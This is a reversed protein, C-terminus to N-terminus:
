TSATTRRRPRERPVRAWLTQSFSADQRQNSNVRLRVTVTGPPARIKRPYGTRIRLLTPDSASPEGAHQAQRRKKYKRAMDLQDRARRLPSFCRLTALAIQVHMRTPTAGFLEATRKLAQSSESEKRASSCGVNKSLRGYVRTSAQIACIEIGAPCESMQNETTTERVHRLRELARRPM